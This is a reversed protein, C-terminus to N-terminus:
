TVAVIEASFLKITRGWLAVLELSEGKTDGLKDIRRVQYWSGVFEKTRMPLIEAPRCLRLQKSGHILSYVTGM